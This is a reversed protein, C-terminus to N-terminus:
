NSKQNEPRKWQPLICKEVKVKQLAPYESIFLKMDEDFNDGVVVDFTGKSYGVVAADILPLIAAVEEDDSKKERLVADIHGLYNISNPKINIEMNLPIDASAFVLFPIEHCTFLSIITNIGNELEFSLLYENFSDVEIKYPAETRYLNSFRNSGTKSDLMDTEAVPKPVIYAGVVRLQKDLKIKNSIKVSLLAISKKTHDINSQGKTLAMKHAACGSLILALCLVCLIRFNVMFGGISKNSEYSDPCNEQYTSISCM